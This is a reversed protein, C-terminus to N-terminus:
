LTKFILKRGTRGCYIYRCIGGIFIKKDLEFRMTSGQAVVEVESLIETDEQLYITGLDIEKENLQIAKIHTIYGVFSITVNYTGDSLGTLIFEGNEDTTNGDIPTDNGIHSISVNVYDLAQRSNSDAIKGIITNQAYAGLILMM